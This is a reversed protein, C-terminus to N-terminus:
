RADLERARGANTLVLPPPTPVFASGASARRTVPNGRAPADWALDLRRLDARIRGLDWLQSSFHRVTLLSAGDPRFQVDRIVDPDRITLQALERWSGIEVLLLHYDSFVVALVKGDASIALPGGPGHDKLLNPGLRWTGVAFARCGCYGSVLLWKGDPTFCVSASGPWNLERILRGTAANWIKVGTGQRTGSALWNGDPSVAANTLQPHGEVRAEREGREDLYLHAHGTHTVLTRSRFPDLKVTCERLGAENLWPLKTPEGIELGPDRGSLECRYLGDTGVILLARDGSAFAAAEAGMPRETVLEGTSSRYIRLSQHTAIAVLKGDSSFGGTAGGRTLNPSVYLLRMERGRSVDFFGVRPESGRRSFAMLRDDPSFQVDCYQNPCNMLLSGDHPDWLRAVGDWGSTALLSGSHNFCARVQLTPTKATWLRTWSRTEWVIISLDKLTTALAKGDDSWACWMVRAPLSPRAVVSGDRLSCIRFGARDAGDIAILQENPSIRLCSSYSGTGSLRAVESGTTLDYRRLSGDEAGIVAWDGGPGFAVPSRGVDLPPRQRSLDFIRRQYGGGTAVLFRGGPSFAFGWESVEGDSVAFKEIRGSRLDHVRVSGSRDGTAVRKFDPDVCVATPDWPLAAVAGRLQLDVPIALAAVAESRLSATPRIQAALRIAQLAAWRQGPEGSVLRYHAESELAAQLRVAALRRQERAIKRQGQAESLAARAAREEGLARLTQNVAVQRQQRQAREALQARRAEAVAHIEARQTSAFAERLKEIAADRQRASFVAARTAAQARNSQNLAAAALAGLAVVGASAVAAARIVGRNFAHRLRPAEASPLNAAAWAPDFLRAYIRNRIRLYGDRFRVAGALKLGRHIPDAEDDLVPSGKWIRRYLDLRAAVEGPDPVNSEGCLLRERVFVLNDDRERAGPSLFIRACVQDVLKVAGLSVQASLAAEAVGRCLRQTLYPHGGTWDLVRRLLQAQRSQGGPLGPALIVAEDRTFDTLEIRRGVNFPTMRADQILDPPSAVGLLCFTLREWVPDDSRHNLCLRIGAFFEDSSFPLSRVADIEDIFIVLDPPEGKGRAGQGPTELAPLVVDHLAGLWRQLLALRGAEAWYAELQATLGLRQGLQAVLGEYWQDPTLNSGLGTLDLIAPRVGRERLRSATRVMLSSKGLQRTTLVYCLEGDMLADFLEDDALRQVYSPTDHRLTGGAVFFSNRQNEM